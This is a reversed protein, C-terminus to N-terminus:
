ISWIITILNLTNIVLTTNNAPKPINDVETDVFYKTLRMNLYGIKHIMNMSNVILFIIKTTFLFIKISDLLQKITEGTRFIQCIVTITHFIFMATMIIVMAIILNTKTGNHNVCATMEPQYKFYTAVALPLIIYGLNINILIILNIHYIWQMHRMIQGSDMRVKAIKTKVIAMLFDPITKVMQITM